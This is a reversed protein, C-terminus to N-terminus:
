KPWKYRGPPSIKPSPRRAVPFGMVEPPLPLQKPDLDTFVYLRWESRRDKAPESLDGFGYGQAVQAERGLLHEQLVGQAKKLDAPRPPVQPANPDVAKPDVKKGPFKRRM